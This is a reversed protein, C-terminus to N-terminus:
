LEGEGCRQAQPNQLQQVDKQSIVTSEYSLGSM